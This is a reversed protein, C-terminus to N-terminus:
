WRSRCTSVCEKGVRREESRDMTLMTFAEGAPGQRHHGAICFWPHARQTFLGKTKRKQGPEEPKTFEYFGDALILCRHSTFERGESRFNYVPKGTPGRWSWPRNVLEGVGREGEVGRVIPATDSIKIDERAAVNPTGEPMTIKIKLNDFDEIISAVDVELRYDNFM